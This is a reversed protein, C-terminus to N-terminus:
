KNNKKTLEYLPTVINSYEKIFRRYYNCFGTFEQINIVNQPILWDKVAKVKKLNMRIDNKSVIHDLFSVEKQHFQSKELNVYLNHNQLAQLVKTVLRQHEELTKSYILIDDLYVVVEKDLLHRLIHTIFRQFIALANILRMLM